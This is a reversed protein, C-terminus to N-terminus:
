YISLDKYFITQKAVGQPIKRSDMFLYRKPGKIQFITNKM